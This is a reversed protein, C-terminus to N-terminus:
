AGCQHGVLEFQGRSESYRFLYAPVCAPGNTIMELFPYKEGKLWYLSFHVEDTGYAAEGCNLNLDIKIWNVEPWRALFASNKWCDEEPGAQATPSITPVLVVYSYNQHQYISLVESSRACFEKPRKLDEDPFHNLSDYILKTRSIGPPPKDYVEYMGTAEYWWEYFASTDVPRDQVAFPPTLYLGAVLILNLM